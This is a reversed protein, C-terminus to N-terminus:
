IHESISKTAQSWVMCFSVWKGSVKEVNRRQHVNKRQVPPTSLTAAAELFPHIKKWKLVNRKATNATCEMSHLLHLKEEFNNLNRMTIKQKQKLIISKSYSKKRLSGLILFYLRENKMRINGNWMENPRIRSIGRPYWHLFQETSSFM